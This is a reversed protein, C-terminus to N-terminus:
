IRARCVLGLIANRVTSIRCSLRFFERKAYNARTEPRSALPFSTVTASDAASIVRLPGSGTFQLVSLIDRLCTQPLTGCRLYNRNLWSCRESCHVSLGSSMVFKGVDRRCIKAPAAAVARAIRPVPSAASGGPLCATGASKLIVFLRIRWDTIPHHKLGIGTGSSILCQASMPSSAMSPM